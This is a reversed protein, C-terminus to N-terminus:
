CVSKSVVLLGVHFELCSKPCELQSGFRENVEMVFTKWVRLYVMVFVNRLGYDWMLIDDYPYMKTLLM